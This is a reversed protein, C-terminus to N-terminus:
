RKVTRDGSVPASTGPSQNENTSELKGRCSVLGRERTLETVIILVTDGKKHANLMHPPIDEVKQISAPLPENVAIADAGLEVTHRLMPASRAQGNTKDRWNIMEAKSFRYEGITAFNGSRILQICQQEANM